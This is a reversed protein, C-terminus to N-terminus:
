SGAGLTTIKLQHILMGEIRSIGINVTDTNAPIGPHDAPTRTSGTYYIGNGTSNYTPLDYEGTGLSASSYPDIVATCSADTCWNGWRVYGHTDANPNAIAGAATLACNGDTEGCYFHSYISPNNPIGTLEVTFNGNQTPAIPNANSDFSSVGSFTLAQYHLTGLPLFADVNKFHMGEADNFDPVWHLADPSTTTQRVSFRFDGSLASQYTIGLTADADNQTQMLRLISSKGSTASYGQDIGAGNYGNWRYGSAVPKGLIITQSQLFDASGSCGAASGGSSNCTGQGAPSVANRGVELEGWFSWRWTDTNSPGKFELITPMAEVSTGGPLNGPDAGKWNGQYDFGTYEFVRLVFPDYISAFADIGYDGDGLGLPCALPGGTCGNGFWDTGNASGSTMSLGYYRPDGRQWGNAAAQVTPESGILEIYSTPAQRLSFDDFVFALGTGTVGSMEVDTIEALAHAGAPLLCALSFTFLSAGIRRTQM